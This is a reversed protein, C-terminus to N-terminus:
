TNANSYVLGVSSVEVCISSVEVCSRMSHNKISSNISVVYSAHRRKWVGSSVNKKEDSLIEPVSM